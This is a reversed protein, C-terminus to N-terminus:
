SRPKLLGGAFAPNTTCGTAGQALALEVEEITPNNVWVRSPTEAVLRSFYNM